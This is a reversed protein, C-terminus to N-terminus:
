NNKWQRREALATLLEGNYTFYSPRAITKCGEIKKMFIRKLRDQSGSIIAISELM